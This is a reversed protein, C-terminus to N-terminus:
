VKRRSTSWEQNNDAGKTEVDYDSFISSVLARDCINGRIFKLDSERLLESINSLNGAYTLCDLNIIHPRSPLSLLYHIFNTGIFGCGGTVLVTKRKPKSIVNASM